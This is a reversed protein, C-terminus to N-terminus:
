KEVANIWSPAFVSWETKEPMLLVLPQMKYIQTFLEFEYSVDELVFNHFFFWNDKKVRRRLSDNM